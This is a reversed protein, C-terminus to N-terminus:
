QSLLHGRALEFYSPLIPLSLPLSQNPVIELSIEWSKKHYDTQYATLTGAQRNPSPFFPPKTESFYIRILNSGIKGSAINKVIHQSIKAEATM